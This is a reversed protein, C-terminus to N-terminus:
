HFAHVLRAHPKCSAQTISAYHKHLALAISAYHEHLAPVVCVCVAQMTSTHHECLAQMISARHGHLVQLNSWTRMTHRRLAQTISAHHQCLPQMISAYNKCATIHAYHRRLARWCPGEGACGSKPTAARRRPREGANKRQVCTGRGRIVPVPCAGRPPAGVSRRCGRRSVALSRPHRLGGAGSPRGRGGSSLCSLPKSSAGLSAAILLRWPPPLFLSVGSVRRL